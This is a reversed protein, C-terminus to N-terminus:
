KKSTKKKKTTKPKTVKELAEIIEPKIEISKNGVNDFVIETKKSEKKPEPIIEIVKVVTVGKDNKGMLYDAMEQTCEFKDGTGFENPKRNIIKEVNELKNFEELTFNKVVEVKVMNEGGLIKNLKIIDDISDIDCSEDNIVVYNSTMIHENIEQGNLSRYLEWVIPERCCLGKDKLTKVREIHEKFMTYDAVKYALPEDHHKIYKSDQNNYTCFFLNGKTYTKVIIKIANESYYVDGFLFCVPENLLEIPFASIWYGTKKNYDWDNFKPEYREVGLNDFREDHSTIIIDKIGNEKLLRITRKIIPEGNVISLQRPTKFNNSAGDSLIIYKM